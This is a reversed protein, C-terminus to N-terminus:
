IYAGAAVTGSRASGALDFPIPSNTVLSKAPSLAGITYTGNGAGAVPGATTHQPTTFLPDNGAGTNTTGVVANPGPYERSWTGTAADQYRMFEGRHGVGYLFSWGGVRTSADALGLNAGAFVDHKTNLQVYINGIMSGLKHTRATGVTENYFNNNRGYVDFGANTNHWYIYHSTNADKGDASLGVSIASASSTYEFINQVIAVNATTAPTSFDTMGAGSNGGQFYNYAVVVNNIARGVANGNIVGKFKCGLISRQEVIVNTLTGNATFQCGRMMRVIHTASPNTTGVMNTMVTNVFSALCGGAGAGLAASNGANDLTCDDVVYGGSGKNHLPNVGGRVLAVDRYRVYTTNAHFAGAGFNVTVTAKTQGTAPEIVIETNTTRATPSSAFSWAGATLRVRLGDLAGAGTGLVTAARNIAGALTLCPSAAATADSQSVAGTTDNGGTAVYVIYPTAALTTDKKFTRPSFDWLDTNASSDQVSGSATSGIWPYVKCNATITGASLSTIDLTSSYGVVPYQDGPGGLVTPATVKSTVTNTGDTATFEVCAVPLGARGNRHFAVIQLTLSNGVITRDYMAWQAVPKPSTEASSNAAGGGITDTSYIYDSLAVTSTTLSAQDPYAQRVRKTTTVTEDYTTATGTNDFGQRTLSVSSFALDSPTVMDAQWGTSDVSYILATFPVSSAGGRTAAYYM